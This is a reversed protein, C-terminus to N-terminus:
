QPWIPGAYPSFHPGTTAGLWETLTAAFYNTVWVNGLFDIAIGEPNGGVAFTLTRQLTNGGNFVLETVTKGPNATSGFNSVWVNGTTEIAVSHPGNGVQYITTAPQIASPNIVTVTNSGSNAVWVNGSPDIAIGQPGTGVTVTNLVTGAPSLETVTNSGFNSVWVNGSADIAIGYPESGVTFPGASTVTVSAPNTASKQCFTYSPVFKSVTNGPSAPTGFNTVWLNGSSDIAMGHPGVLSGFSWTYVGGSSGKPAAPCTSADYAPQNLNIMALNNSDHNATWIDGAFDIAIGFPGAGDVSYQTIFSGGPSLETVSNAGSNTVWV